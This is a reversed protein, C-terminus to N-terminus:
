WGGRRAFPFSLGTHNKHTLISVHVRNQSQVTCISLPSISFFSLFLLKFVLLRIKALCHSAAQLKCDVLDSSSEVRDSGFGIWDSANGRSLHFFVAFSGFSSLSAVQVLSFCASWIENNCSETPFLSLCALRNMNNTRLFFLFYNQKFSM